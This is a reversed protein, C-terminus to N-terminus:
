KKKKDYSDKLNDMQGQDHGEKRAARAKDDDFFGQSLGEVSKGERAREYGERKAEEPDKPM